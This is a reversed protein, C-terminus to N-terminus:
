NDNNNAGAQATQLQQYRAWTKKNPEAWWSLIEWAKRRSEHHLMYWQAPLPGPPRPYTTIILGQSRLRHIAQIVTQRTTQCAISALGPDLRGGPIQLLMALIAIPTGSLDRRRRRHPQPTGSPVSM